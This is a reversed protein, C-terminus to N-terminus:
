EFKPQTIVHSQFNTDQTHTHTRNIFKHKILVRQM